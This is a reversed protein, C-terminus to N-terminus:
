GDNTVVVVNTNSYDQTELGTFHADLAVIGGEDLELYYTTDWPPDGEKM